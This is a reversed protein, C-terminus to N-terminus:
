AGRLRRLQVLLTPGTRDLLAGGSRIGVLMVTVGTILGAVIAGWGFLPDVVLALTALVITPVLLALVVGWVVFIQLGTTFSAGPASTFPNGGAEPVAMVFRASSVSVVGFGTLLAGLSLGMLAPLQHWQSAIAVGVVALVVTFPVAFVALAAVRGTRDDRGRVGDIVHTAFATGDYSIDTALTLALTFGVLPGSWMVLDPADTILSYFWLLLPVLPVIILQRAYRPDRRWYTLCRAMVAGAPTQPVRGFVGLAGRSVSPASTSSPSVLARALAHRWLAILAALTVLAILLRLLAGVLDGAAVAAPVAWAAGFPSWGLAGAVAPLADASTELGRMVGILIPGLLFVPILVLLGGMEQARRSSQLGVSAATVARSAIVATLVGIIASLVAAAAAGPHRVWALVTALGALSTIIGPIGLLGAFTLGVLLTRLPVPYQALRAPELTQDIGSLLLPFLLWGAVVASGALVIITTALELSGFLGLAVLGAVALGLVGLAYIGGIITGVLQWTSRRLSNALVLLRLKILTAVM